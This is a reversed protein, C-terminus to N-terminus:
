IPTQGLAVNIRSLLDDDNFPKLLYAIAGAELARRRAADDPYATILIVPIRNGASVLQHHLEVGSMGPIQVDAILCATVPLLPSALFDEACAFVEASFGVSKMLGRMALRLSEDDDVISILTQKPM